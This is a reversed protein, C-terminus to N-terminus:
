RGHVDPIAVNGFFSRVPLISDIMCVYEFTIIRSAIAVDSYEIPTRMFNGSQDSLLVLYIPRAGKDSGSGAVFPGLHARIVVTSYAHFPCFKAAAAHSVWSRNSWLWRFPVVKTAKPKHTDRFEVSIE